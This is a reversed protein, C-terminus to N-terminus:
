LLGQEWYGAVVPPIGDQPAIAPCYGLERRARDIRFERSAVTSRINARTVLPTRQRWRAELELLSAGLLLAWVPVYWYPRRIGLAHTVIKQLEALKLSHEGAIFYAAGPNGREGALVAATVVDDVHVLPTLNAGLGPRPFLGRAMLRCFKYFEGRDGPGYIMCPRLIVVPLGTEARIQELVIEGQRKSQQYPTRPQPRISEDIFAARVTGIAATSSFHVFRALPYGACARALNEVGTVNVQYFREAAEPSLASVHGVAALNYVTDVGDALGVLTEPRTLDAPVTEVGGTEGAPAYARQHLALRCLVGRETLARVLRTGVFGTGGLVLARKM